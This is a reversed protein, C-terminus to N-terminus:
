GVPGPPDHRRANATHHGRMSRALLVRLEEGLGEDEVSSPTAIRIGRPALPNGNQGANDPGSWQVVGVRTPVGPCM